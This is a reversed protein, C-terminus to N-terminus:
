CIRYGANSFRLFCSLSCVNRCIEDSMLIVNFFTEDGFPVFSRNRPVVRIETQRRVSRSRLTCFVDNGVTHKLFAAGTPFECNQRFRFPSVAPPGDERNSLLNSSVGEM